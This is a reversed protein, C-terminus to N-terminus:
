KMLASAPVNCTTLAGMLMPLMFTLAASEGAAKGTEGNSISQNFGILERLPQYRPDNALTMMGAIEDPKSAGVVKVIDVQRKERGAAIGENIMRAFLQGGGGELIAIDDAVRAPNDRVYDEARKTMMAEFQPQRLNQRVCALQTADMADPKDNIPWKPDEAAAAELVRGLPMLNSAARALRPADGPIPKTQASGIGPVAIMALVVCAALLLSKNLHADRM